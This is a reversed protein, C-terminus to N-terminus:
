PASLFVRLDQVWLSAQLNDVAVRVQTCLSKGKSKVYLDLDITSNFIDLHM